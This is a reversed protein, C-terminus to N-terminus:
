WQFNSVKVTSTATGNATKVPIVTYKINTLQVAWDWTVTLGTM